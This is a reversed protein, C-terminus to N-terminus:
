CLLRQPPRDPTQIYLKQPVEEGDDDGDDDDGDGDGGDDDDDGGCKKANKKSNNQQNKHKKYLNKAIQLTKKQSKQRNKTITTQRFILRNDFQNKENQAIIDPPYM